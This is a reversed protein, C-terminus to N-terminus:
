FFDRVERQKRLCSVEDVANGIFPLLLEDFSIEEHLCYSVDNMISSVIVIPQSVVQNILQSTNPFYLDHEQNNSLYEWKRLGKTSPTWQFTM